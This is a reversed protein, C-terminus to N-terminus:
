SSTFFDDQHNKTQIKVIYIDKIYHFLIKKLIM